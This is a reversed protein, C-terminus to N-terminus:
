AGVVIRKNVVDYKILILGQDTIFNGSVDWYIQDRTGCDGTYDVENGKEDKVISNEILECGHEKEMIRTMQYETVKGPNFQLSLSYCATNNRVAVRMKTWCLIAYKAITRALEDENAVTEDCGEKATECVVVTEMVRVTPKCFDSTQGLINQYFYCFINKSFTKVPGGILLLLVGVGVLTIIIYAMINLELGKKNKFVVPYVM